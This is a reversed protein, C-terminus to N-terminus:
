EMLSWLAGIDPNEALSWSRGTDTNMLVTQQALIGSAFIQYRAEGPNSETTDANGWSVMEWAYSGGQTEVFQWTRGTYRDLRFMLRALIQSQVIEYRATDPVTTSAHSLEQANTISSTCLLVLSLTAFKFMDSGKERKAGAESYVM